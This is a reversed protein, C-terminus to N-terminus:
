RAARLSKDAQVVQEQPTVPMGPRVRQLGAVLVKEGASLGSRVVRKGGISPGLTVARYAVTNTETLTLVFKHTQDTGIAEEEVTVAPYSASGPIRIRAFLGPLIRGDPNPIIARLLISGTKPDLRNDFSEIHGRHPFGNDDALQLEVPVNGNTDTNLKNARALANLKLLSNEDVDAYIHIPDVSVITTLVTAAGPIGSVYNGATVLARSVRGSIPARVITHEVDLRAGDRAAEAAVKAAKAELFRAERSEAEEVSVANNALLQTSRRAEREANKLRVEAREFEATARELEAKYWRPDVTFLADGKQVLQGSQFHVEQLHGSVRARLEVNEAADTRGTFENWEVLEQSSAPSITVAPPTPPQVLNRKGCGAAFIAAATLFGAFLLRRLTIFPKMNKYIPIKIQSKLFPDRNM